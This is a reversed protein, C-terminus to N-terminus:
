KFAKLLANKCRRALVFLDKMEDDTFEDLEASHKYPSVMVHGGSYPFANLLAFCTKERVLIYSKLDTTAAGKSDLQSAASCFICGAPKEISFYEARWPAWLQEM